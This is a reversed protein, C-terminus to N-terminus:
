KSLRNRKRHELMCEIPPKDRRTKLKLGKVLKYTNQYKSLVKSALEKITYKRTDISQLLDVVRGNRCKLGLECRINKITLRTVNLKNALQIDTATYLPHKQNHQLKRLYRRALLGRTRKNKIFNNRM